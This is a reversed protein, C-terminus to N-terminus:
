GPHTHIYLVHFTFCRAPWSAIQDLGDKFVHPLVDLRELVGRERGAAIHDVDMGTLVRPDLADNGNQVFLGHPGKGLFEVIQIPARPQFPTHVSEEAMSLGANLIGPDIPIDLKEAIRVAVDVFTVKQDVGREHQWCTGLEAEAFPRAADGRNVGSLM